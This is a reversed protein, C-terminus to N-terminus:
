EVLREDADLTNNEVGSSAAPEQAAAEAVPEQAPEQAAPEQANTPSPSAEDAGKGASTELVADPQAPSVPGSDPAPTETPQAM